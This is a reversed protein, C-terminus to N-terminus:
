SRAEPLTYEPDALVDPIHVTARKSRLERRRRAAAPELTQQKLYGIANGPISRTLPWGISLTGRAAASIRSTRKAFGRRRNAILTDLVAALDFTSRSIVKLM